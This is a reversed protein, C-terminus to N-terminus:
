DLAPPEIAIRDFFRETAELSALRKYHKRFTRDAGAPAGLRGLVAQGEKGDPRM